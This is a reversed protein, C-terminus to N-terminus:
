HTLSRTNGLATTHQSSHSLGLMAIATTYVPLQLETEIGIRPFEVHWLHPGLFVFFSEYNDTHMYQHACFTYQVRFVVLITLM